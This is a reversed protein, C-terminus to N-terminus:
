VPKTMVMVSIIIFGMDQQRDHRFTSLFVVLFLHSLVFFLLKM